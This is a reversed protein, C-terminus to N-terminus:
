RREKQQRENDLQHRLTLFRRQTLVDSVEGRLNAMAMGFVQAIVAESYGDTLRVPPRGWVPAFEVWGPRM